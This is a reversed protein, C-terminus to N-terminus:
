GLVSSLAGEPCPQTYRGFLFIYINLGAIDSQPMQKFVLFCGKLFSIPVETSLADECICGPHKHYGFYPFLM